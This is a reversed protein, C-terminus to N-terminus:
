GSSEGFGSGMKYMMDYDLHTRWMIRGAENHWEVMVGHNPQYPILRIMGNPAVKTGGSCHSTIELYPGHKIVDVYKGKGFNAPMTGNLGIEVGYRWRYWFARFRHKWHWTWFRKWWKKM